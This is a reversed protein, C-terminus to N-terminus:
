VIRVLDLAMAVVFVVEAFVAALGALFAGARAAALGAALAAGRVAELFTTGMVSFNVLVWIVLSIASFVPRVLFCTLSTSSLRLLTMSRWRCLFPAPSNTSGPRSLILVTLFGAVLARLPMLGKVPSSVVNLALGALM